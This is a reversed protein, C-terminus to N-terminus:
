LNITLLNMAKTYGFLLRWDNVLKGGEVHADTPPIDLWYMAKLDLTGVADNINNGQFNATLEGFFRADGWKDSLNTAQPSFNLLTATINVINTKGEPKVEGEIDFGLNPDNVTLNVTIVTVLAERKDKAVSEWSM